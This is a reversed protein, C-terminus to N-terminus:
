ALLVVSKVFVSVKGLFLLATMLNLYGLRDRLLKLAKYMHAEVTRLSIGLTEAIEKNKMDHMYSLKFVMKCKDPLENIADFLEKRLEGDEIRKVVDNSDPQYFEIRKQHIELMVAEYSNKIDRHKLVNLARTYVARYLFAQIQDGVTMSEQRRWLEVFVDQVVDEAEEEGVIRTAYFLLNTYYKRFLLKYTLDFNENM